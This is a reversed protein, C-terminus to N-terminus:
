QSIALTATVPNSPASSLVTRGTRLEFSARLRVRGASSSLYDTMSVGAIQWNSRAVIHAVQGPALTRISAPVQTSGFVPRSSLLVWDSGNSSIYLNLAAAISSSADVPEASWPLAIPNESVNEIDMEYHFHSEPSYPADSFEVMRVDISSLLAEFMPPAAPSPAAVASTLDLIQAHQSGTVSVGLSFLLSAVAGFLSM